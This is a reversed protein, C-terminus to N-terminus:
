KQSYNLKMAMKADKVVSKLKPVHKMLAFAWMENKEIAVYVIQSCISVKAEPVMAELVNMFNTAQKLTIESPNLVKLINACEKGFEVAAGKEINSYEFLAQEKMDDWDGNIYENPDLRKVQSNIYDLLRLATATGILGAAINGFLTRNETQDMDLDKQMNLYTQIVTEWARRDPTKMCDKAKGSVSNVNEANSWPGSPDMDLKHSSMYRLVINDGYKTTLYEITEEPDPIFEYVAFRSVQAPDMTNVSYKGNDKPNICAFIRSGEPLSIDDYTGDNTFQMIANMAITMGRNIEDLLVLVPTDQCMWDPPAFKTAPTTVTKGTKTDVYTYVEDTRYPLGTLDGPDAMHSTHKVVLNMGLEKALSKCFETKGIGHVGMLLISRRAPLYKVISRIGKCNYAAM